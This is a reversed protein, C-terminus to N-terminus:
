PAPRRIRAAPRTRQPAQVRARRRGPRWPGSPPAPWNTLTILASRRSITKVSISLPSRSVNWVVQPRNEGRAISTTFPYAGDHGGGHNLWTGSLVTFRGRYKELPKLIRSMGADIGFGDPYFQRMNMGTGFYFMGMRPVIDPTSAASVGQPMMAELWPLALCTGAGRLFARRDLQRFTQLNM